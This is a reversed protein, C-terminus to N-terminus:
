IGGTRRRSVYGERGATEHRRPSCLDCPRIFRIRSSLLSQLALVRCGRVRAVVRWEVVSDIRCWDMAFVLACCHLQVASLRVTVVACVVSCCDDLTHVYQVAGELGTEGGGERISKSRVNLVLKAGQM